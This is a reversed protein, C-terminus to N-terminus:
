KLNCKLLEKLSRIKKGTYEPHRNEPDFLIPQMGLGKPTIIDTEIKDGIMITEGPKIKLKDLCIQFIKKDPKMTGQEHSLVIIDVHDRIGKEQIINEIFTSDNSIIGIKDGRKKLEDLVEIAGNYLNLSKEWAEMRSFFRDKQEGTMEVKLHKLLSELAERSSDFRRVYLFPRIKTKIDWVNLGFSESMIENYVKINDTILTGFFDFIYNM